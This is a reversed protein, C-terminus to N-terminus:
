GASPRARELVELHTVLLAPNAPTDEADAEVLSGPAPIEGTFRATTVCEVVRKNVATVRELIHFRIKADEHKIDQITGICCRM